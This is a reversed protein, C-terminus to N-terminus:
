NESDIDEEKTAKNNSLTKNDEERIKNIRLISYPNLCSDTFHSTKSCNFCAGKALNVLIPTSQLGPTM